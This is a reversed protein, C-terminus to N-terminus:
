ALMESFMSCSATCLASLEEMWGMRKGSVRGRTRVRHGDEFDRMMEREAELGLYHWLEGWVQRGAGEEM